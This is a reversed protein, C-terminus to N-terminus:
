RKLWKIDNEQEAIKNQSLALEGQLSEQLQSIRVQQSRLQGEQSHIVKRMQQELQKKERENAVQLDHYRAKLAANQESDDIHMLSLRECEANRDDM